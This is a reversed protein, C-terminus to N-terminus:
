NGLQPPYQMMIGNHGISKRGVKGEELSTRLLLQAFHVHVERMSQGMRGPIDLKRPKKPIEAHRPCEIAPHGVARRYM